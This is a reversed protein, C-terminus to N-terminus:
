LGAIRAYLQQKHNLMAVIWFMIKGLVVTLNQLTAPTCQPIHCTFLKVANLVTIVLLNHM